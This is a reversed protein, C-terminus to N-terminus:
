FFKKKKKSVFNIFFFFYFFNLFFLHPITIKYFFDVYVGAICITNYKKPIFPPIFFFSRSLIKLFFLFFFM